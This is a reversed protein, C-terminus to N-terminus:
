RYYKYNQTIYSYIGNLTLQKEKTSAIAQVILQSYSYPPRGDGCNDIEFSFESSFSSNSHSDHDAALLNDNNYITGCSGNVYGWSSVPNPSGATVSQTSFKPITISKFSTDLVPDDGNAIVRYSNQFNVTDDSDPNVLLTIEQINDSGNEAQVYVIESVEINNEHASGGTSAENETASELIDSNKCFREYFQLAAGSPSKLAAEGPSSLEALDDGDTRPCTYSHDSTFAFTDLMSDNSDSLQRALTLAGSPSPQALVSDEDNSTVIDEQYAYFLGSNDIGEGSMLFSDDDEEVFEKKTGVDIVEDAIDSVPGEIICEQKIGQDKIREEVHDKKIGYENLYDETIGEEKTPEDKVIFEAVADM